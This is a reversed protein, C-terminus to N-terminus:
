ARDRAPERRCARPDERVVRFDDTWQGDLKRVVLTSERLPSAVSLRADAHLDLHAGAQGERPIVDLRAEISLGRAAVAPAVRMTQVAGQCIVARGEPALTRAIADIYVEVGGRHEFRCPARVAAAFVRHRHGASFLAAHRHRSRLRRLDPLSSPERMDGDRVSVRHGVDNWEISRRALAASERQAEVGILQADPFRWSSFLLVTGIGCGLDLIRRADPKARAAIWATMLDDLSWRHGDLRQLIRFDGSLWCLDEGDNLGCRRPCREDGPM